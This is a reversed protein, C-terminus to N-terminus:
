ILCSECIYHNCCPLKEFHINVDCCIDCTTLEIIKDKREKKNSNYLELSLDLRHIPNLINDCIHIAMGLTLKNSGKGDLLSYLEIDLEEKIRIYKKLTLSSIHTFKLTEKLNKNNLLYLVYVDDIRETLKNKDKM